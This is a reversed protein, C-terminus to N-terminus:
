YEASGHKLRSRIADWRPISDVAGVKQVSLSAAACAFRAAGLADGSRSYEALFAGDFTDGAGTADILKAPNHDVMHQGDSNALIAVKEGLSLLVLEVGYSLFRNCIEATDSTGFLAESDETSPFVLDVHPLIREMASLAQKSSWLNLRLNTDFSVRAGAARAMEAARISAECSSESIAQSIASLHLVGVQGFMDPNLDSPSFRSAASGARRYSFKHGSPGYEIFYLGTPFDEIQSVWSTDIGETAYLQLIHDAFGDTGLNALM